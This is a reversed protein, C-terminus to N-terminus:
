APPAAPTRGPPADEDFGPQPRRRSSAMQPPESAKVSLQTPSQQGSARGANRQPRHAPDLKTSVPPSVEVMVTESTYQAHREITPVVMPLGSAIRAGGAWTM